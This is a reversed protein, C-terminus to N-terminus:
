KICEPCIPMKLDEIKEKNPADRLEKRYNVIQAQESISFMVNYDNIM